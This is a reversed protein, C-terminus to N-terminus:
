GASSALFLPALHRSFINETVNRAVVEAHRSLLDLYRPGAQAAVKFSVHLLQRLHPNFHAHGPVHRLSQAFRVGSWGQVEALSPLRRRDIDIVSAYPACLADVHDLAYAYIEGVLALAEGEAECM